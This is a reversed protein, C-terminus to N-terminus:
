SLSRRSRGLVVVMHQGRGGGQNEMPSGDVLHKTGTRTTYAHAVLVCQGRVKTFAVKVQIEVFMMSVTAGGAVLVVAETPVATALVLAAAEM